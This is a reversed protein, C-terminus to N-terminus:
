QNIAGVCSQLLTARHSSYKDRHAEADAHTSLKTSATCRVKGLSQVLGHGSSKCPPSIAWFSLTVTRM